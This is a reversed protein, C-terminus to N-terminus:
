ELAPRYQPNKDLVFRVEERADREDVGFARFVQAVADELATVLPADILTIESTGVV